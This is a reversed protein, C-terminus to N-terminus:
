KRQRGCEANEVPVPEVHFIRRRNLLQCCDVAEHEVFRSGDRRRIRRPHMEIALQRGVLPGHHHRSRLVGVVWEAALQDVPASRNSRHTYATKLFYCALPDFRHHSAMVHTHPAMRKYSGHVCRTIRNTPAMSEHGDIAMHFAAKYSCLGPSRLQDLHNTM